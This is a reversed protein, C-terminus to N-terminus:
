VYGEMNLIMFLGGDYADVAGSLGGKKADDNAFHGRVLTKDSKGLVLGHTIKGM